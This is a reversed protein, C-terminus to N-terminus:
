KHRRSIYYNYRSRRHKKGYYSKKGSYATAAVTAKKKPKPAVYTTTTDPTITVKCGVSVMRRLKRLDNNHLRICGLSARTGISEPKNTGHIGIHPSELGGLRMFWPGYDSGSADGEWKQSDEISVIKFEGEPTKHDGDQMKQGYNMGLAVPYVALTDGKEGLAYLRYSPKDIVIHTCPEPEVGAMSGIITALLYLLYNM